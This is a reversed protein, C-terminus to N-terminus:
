YGDDEYEDEDEDEDPEVYGRKGEEVAKWESLRSQFIGGRPASLAWPDLVENWWMGDYLGLAEIAEMLAFEGAFSTRLPSSFVEEWRRNLEPTAAWGAREFIRAYGDELEDPNAEAEAEERSAFVMESVVDDGSEDSTETRLIYVKAKTVLGSGALIKREASATIALRDVFIGERGDKRVLMFTPRGGLQAIKMWARPYESVSLLTGEQSDPAKRRARKLNGVHWVREKHLVPLSAPATKSAAPKRPM